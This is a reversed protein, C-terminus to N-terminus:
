QTIVMGAMTADNGLDWDKELKLTKADYVEINYSAGYIYLKNGDGSMGFQFRSRCPFEQTALVKNTGLDLRWFECRKNGLKHTTVVTYGEKGDPTVELGAMSDPAPGIPTFNFQRTALDLRAIGFVKNHIYPDTANFLSVYERTSRINEVGGGFSVNEMGSLDPKALDLRESVKLDATNLVLVKDRFVYLTKGDESLMFGARYSFTDDEPALDATRVIKKQQLDVVIYHPKSIKYRDVEKDIRMGITYFYRGAADVVGGNFRYKTTPTNLSFSNIVKKTALDLVEIGSTTITTVYLKKKDNSLQMGVPLGTALTVKQKVTGTGEDFLVLQNPYGGLYITAAQAAGVGGLATLLAAFGMRLKNM